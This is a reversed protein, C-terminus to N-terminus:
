LEVERRNMIRVIFLGIVAMFVFLLTSLATGVGYTGDAFEKFVATNIVETMRGPGGNTLVYIIDFVKLGYTIGFILNINIAPMLMPLTIHRLKQMFTAGDIDAAEYYYNPISQLGALFITMVYGIGRWADVAYISPWVWKPDVLWKQAMFDLGFKRLMENVFGTTPHLMSRFILGIVLYPLVSPFFLIARHVNKAKLGENLLIALFLAPIIKVINSILTFKLTNMIYGLYNKNSTFITKYNDFGVFNIESSYRNWDTFSYYIGLFGPAIFLVAYLILAIYTFYLPYIKGQNM